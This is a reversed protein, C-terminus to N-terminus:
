QLKRKEQCTPRVNRVHLLTLCQNATARSIVIIQMIKIKYFNNFRSGLDIDINKIGKELLTKEKDKQKQRQRERKREALRTYLHAPPYTHEHM